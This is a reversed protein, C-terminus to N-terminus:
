QSLILVICLYAFYTATATTAFIGLAALFYYLINLFTSRFIQTPNKM